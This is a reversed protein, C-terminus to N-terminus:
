FKIDIGLGFASEKFNYNSITAGYGSEAKLYGRLGQYIKFNWSLEGYPKDFGSEIINRTLLKVEQEDTPQWGFVFEGHGLFDTIDPNYDKSDHIRIWPKIRIFGQPFHYTVNVYARNWSVENSGGAGNSQHEVGFAADFHKFKKNYFLEPNFDNDRFYASSAYAEWNSKQTYALFVGEEHNGLLHYKLSIQFQVFIDHVKGGDPSLPEFRAQNVRSEKYLPLLYTDKHHSVRSPENAWVPSATTILSISLLLSSKKM